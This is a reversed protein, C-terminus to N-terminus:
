ICAFRRVPLIYRLPVSVLDCLLQECQEKSFSVMLGENLGKLGENPGKPGGNLGKPGEFPGKPGENPGKPGENPGKTGETQGNKAEKEVAKWMDSLKVLTLPKDAALAGDVLRLLARAQSLIVLIILFSTL